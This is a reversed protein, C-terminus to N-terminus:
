RAVFTEAARSTRRTFDETAADFTATCGPIFRDHLEIAIQDVRSIWQGAEAFVKKEGGEIDVKLLDVRGIGFRDLLTNMTIAPVQTVEVAETEDDARLGWSGRGPDVLDVTGDATWLAARLPEINPYSDAHHVLLDFNGPDPEIAVVTASPFKHAFYVASYGANAGVDIIWRPSGPDYPLDYGSDGIVHGLTILDTGGLRVRFPAPYGSWEIDLVGGAGRRDRVAYRVAQEFPFWQRYM